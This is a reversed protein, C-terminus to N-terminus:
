PDLNQDSDEDIATSETHTCQLSQHTQANTCALKLRGQQVIYYTPFDRTAPELSWRLRVCDTDNSQRDEYHNFASMIIDNLYWNRIDPCLNFTKNTVANM